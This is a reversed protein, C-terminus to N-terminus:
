HCTYWLIVAIINNTYILYLSVKIVFHRKSPTMDYLKVDAQPLSKTSLSKCSFDFVASVFILPQSWEIYMIWIINLVSKAFYLEIHTSTNNLHIRTPSTYTHTHIYIPEDVKIYVGVLIWTLSVQPAITAGKERQM